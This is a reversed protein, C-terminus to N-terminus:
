IKDRTILTIHGARKDALRRHVGCLMTKVADTQYESGSYSCRYEGVNLAHCQEEGKLGKVGRWEGAMGPYEGIVVKKM